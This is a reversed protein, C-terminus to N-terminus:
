DLGRCAVQDTWLPSSMPNEEKLESQGGFRIIAAFERVIDHCLAVQEKLCGTPGLQM